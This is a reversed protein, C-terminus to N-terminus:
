GLKEKLKTEVFILIKRIRLLSLLLHKLYDIIISFVMMKMSKLLLLSFLSNFSMNKPLSDFMHTVSNDKLVKNNHVLYVSFIFPGTFCIIKALYKNYHIQMCFLCVAMSQIIKLFSDYRENLMRKIVFPVEIILNGIRIPIENHSTKFFLYSIFTFIFLCLFLYIYKKIGTYDVRYKGIYAGTLYYILFWIVSNGNHCQFMDENPNKYERWFVFILHLTLVVLGFEYKSLSAIGKNLVPLFLYMGFYTTFFWYRKFIMPYYEYIINEKIISHKKFLEYFKHIGVSYFFVTLWLYILNSYKNTKYGVIGSILIFANNNWDTFSKLLSLQREYQPFHDFVFGNRIYHNLVINYMSIIRAFDV